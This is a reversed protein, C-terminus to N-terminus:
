KDRIGQNAYRRNKRNNANLSLNKKLTTLIGRILKNIKWIITQKAEAIIVISINLITIGTV